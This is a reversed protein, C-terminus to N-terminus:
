ATDLALAWPNATTTQPAKPWRSSFADIMTDLQDQLHDEGFIDIFFGIAGMGQGDPERLVPQQHSLSALFGRGEPVPDLPGQRGRPFASHGPRGVHLRSTIKRHKPGSCVVARIERYRTVMSLFRETKDPPLDLTATVGRNEGFPSRGRAIPEM